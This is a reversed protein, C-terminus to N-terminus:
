RGDRALAVGAGWGPAGGGQPPELTGAPVGSRALLWAVVSNSNWMEGLRREDRGWVLAPVAPVLDLLRQACAADARVRRPGPAAWAEDFITGDRWRRVEYRLSRLRALRRSFVPGEVVVGRAAGHADPIPWANEVVYRGGPVRVVLATHYLARPRRRERAALIREYLRGNAKVFWGGAGLPIWLLDIGPTAQLPDPAQAVAVARPV